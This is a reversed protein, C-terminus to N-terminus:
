FVAVPRRLASLSLWWGDAHEDFACLGAPDQWQHWLPHPRQGETSYESDVTRPDSPAIAASQQTSGDCFFHPRGLVKSLRHPPSLGCGEAAAPNPPQLRWSCRLQGRHGEIHPAVSSSPATSCPRRGCRGPPLAGSAIAARIEYLAGPSRPNSVCSICM